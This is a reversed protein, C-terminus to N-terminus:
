FSCGIALQLQVQPARGGDPSAHLRSPLRVRNHCEAPGMGANGLSQSLADNRWTLAHHKRKPSGLQPGEEPLEIVRLSKLDLGRRQQWLPRQATSAAAAPANVASRLLSEATAESVSQASAALSWAACAM